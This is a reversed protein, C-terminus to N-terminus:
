QRTNTDMDKAVEPWHSPLIKLSDPEAKYTHDYYISSAEAWVCIDPKYKKVWKVFNDFNHHQDSWMGNQINWYLIRITGKPKRGRKIAVKKVDKAMAESAKDQAM